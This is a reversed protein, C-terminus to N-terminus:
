RSIRCASRTACKTFQYAATMSEGAHRTGVVPRWDGREIVDGLEGLRERREELVGGVSATPLGSADLEDAAAPAEGVNIRGARRRQIRRPTLHSGGNAAGDDQDEAASSSSWSAPL